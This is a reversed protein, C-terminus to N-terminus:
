ENKERGEVFHAFFKQLSMNDISIDLEKARIREEQSLSQYMGVVRINGYSEQHIINKGEIVQNLANEKGSIFYIKERIDDVTEHLVIEGNDMIFVEEIVTSVEDILHTSLLFTRPYEAYDEILTTYFRERMLADLGLIPEDFVTLPARSALGIIISLSSKMGRSLKKYRKNSDLEFKELLEKVFDWDWNPYFYSSVKLITKVKEDNFYNVDEKLYCVHHPTDGEKLVKGFVEIQGTDPFLHGNLLNLLTTKGAGNRGLLGYIKNAELKFDVQKVAETDKYNKSLGSSKLVTKM